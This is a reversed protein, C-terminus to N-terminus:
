FEEPHGMVTLLKQIQDYFYGKKLITAANKLGNVSFSAATTEPATDVIVGVYRMLDSTAQKDHRSPSINIFAKAAAVLKRDADTYRPAPTGRGIHRKIAVGAATIGVVAVLALISTIINRVVKARKGCDEKGKEVCAIFPKWARNLEKILNRMRLNKARETWRGFFGKKTTVEQQVDAPAEQMAQVPMTSLLMAFAGFLLTHKAIHKM